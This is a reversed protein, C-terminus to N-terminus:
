PTVGCAGHPGPVLQPAPCQTEGWVRHARRGETGTYMCTHPRVGALSRDRGLYTYIRLALSGRRGPLPEQARCSGRRSPRARRRRALEPLVRSAPCLRVRLCCSLALLSGRQGSHSHPPRVRRHRPARRARPSPPAPDPSHTLVCSSATRPTDWCDPSRAVALELESEAQCALRSFADLPAGHTAGLARGRM